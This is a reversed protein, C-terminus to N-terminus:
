GADGGNGASRVKRYFCVRKLVEERLNSLVRRGLKWFNRSPRADAAEQLFSHGGAENGDFVAPTELSFVNLGTEWYAHLTHDIQHIIKPCNQLFRKAGKKSVVYSQTGWDSFKTIGLRIGEDVRKLPAFPKDTNHRHLFVFDFEWGSAYLRALANLAGGIEPALTVDDEFVAALEDEGAAVSELAKRHSLHCAVMGDSLPRRGERDRAKRDVLTWDEEDLDRWDTAEFIEFEIGLAEFQKRMAERRDEARPLNIVICKMMHSSHVVKEEKTKTITEVHIISLVKRLNGKAVGNWKEPASLLM